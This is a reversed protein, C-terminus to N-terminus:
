SFDPGYSVLFLSILDQLLISEISHIQSYTNSQSRFEHFCMAMYVLASLDVHVYVLVCICLYLSPKLVACVYKRFPCAVHENALGWQMKVVLNQWM